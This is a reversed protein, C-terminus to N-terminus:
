RRPGNNHRSKLKMFLDITEKYKQAVEELKMNNKRTDILFMGHGSKRHATEVPSAM